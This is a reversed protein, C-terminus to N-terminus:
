EQERKAVARAVSSTNVGVHRAIEAMTEGLENLGRMAISARVKSVKTRRGGGNLEKQNVGFKGCEEKVIQALTMGGAKSKLQRRARDESERLIASVFDGNGLIREDAIEKEGRRRASLVQSWGGKSRILGGGTLEPTRGQNMGEAVFRRYQSTAREEQRDFQGLVAPCDMWSQSNTGMLVSHGTWPYKDLEKLSRIIRARIPNLHIYRVLALLYNEEDCIISKYRNEFLHGSRRHRRNYYIAYGTLVKRMVKSIGHEGSKFLIHAHNDMIAWALVACRGASVNHGLRKLFRAKDEPDAFVSAKNLGRVMIHHLTGPMDLRAQRTM